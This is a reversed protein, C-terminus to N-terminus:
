LRYLIRGCNECIELSSPDVSKRSTSTPLGIFCGLCVREEVPVVVRSFRRSMRQYTQLLREDIRKALLERTRELKEMGGMAFGLSEEHGARAPDRADRIM